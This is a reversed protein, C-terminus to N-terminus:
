ERLVEDRWSHPARSDALLGDCNEQRQGWQGWLALTLTLPPSVGLNKVTHALVLALVNVWQVKGM